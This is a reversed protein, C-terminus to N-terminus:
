SIKVKKFTVTLVGDKIEKSTPVIPSNSTVDASRQTNKSTICDFSPLEIDETRVGMSPSVHFYAENKETSIYRAEGVPEHDLVPRNTHNGPKSEHEEMAKYRQPTYQLTTLTIAAIGNIHETPILALSTLRHGIIQMVEASLKDVKENLAQLSESTIFDGTLEEKM